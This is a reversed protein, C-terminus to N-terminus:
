EMNVPTYLISHKQVVGRRAKKEHKSSKIQTNLM